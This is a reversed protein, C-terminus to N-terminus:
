PTSWCHNRLKEHVGGVSNAADAQGNSDARGRHDGAECEARRDRVPAARRWPHKKRAM